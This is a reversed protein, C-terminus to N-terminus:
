FFILLYLSAIAIFLSGTGKDKYHASFDSTKIKITSAEFPFRLVNKTGVVADAFEIPKGM